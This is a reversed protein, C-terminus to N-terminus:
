PSVARRGRARRRTMRQLLLGCVAAVGVGTWLLLQSGTAVVQWGGWRAVAVALFGFVTFTLRTRRRARAQRAAPTSGHRPASM